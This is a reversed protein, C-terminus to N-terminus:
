PGAQNVELARQGVSICLAFVVAVPSKGSGTPTHLIVNKELFSEDRKFSRRGAM